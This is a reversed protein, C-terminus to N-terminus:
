MFRLYKKCGLSNFILKYLTLYLMFNVSCYDITQLPLHAIKLFSLNMLMNSLFVYEGFTIRILIM